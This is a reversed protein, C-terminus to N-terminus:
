RATPQSIQSKKLITGKRPLLVNLSVYKTGEEVPVKYRLHWPTEKGLTEPALPNKDPRQSQRGQGSQQGWHSGSDIVYEENEETNDTSNSRYAM